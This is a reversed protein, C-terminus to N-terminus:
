IGDYSIVDWDTEEKTPLPAPLQSVGMHFMFRVHHVQAGTKSCDWDDSEYNWISTDYVDYVGFFVDHCTHLGM